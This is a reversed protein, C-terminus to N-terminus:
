RGCSYTAKETVVCDMRVDPEDLPIEPFLQCEFALGILSARKDVRGLLRDYYGKGYGLRGGERDFAVGPTFVVDLELPSVQRDPDGRRDSRPELIGYAGSELEDLSLLHFLTLESRECYPIVIRKPSDLAKALAFSTRVESRVDIYFLVTEAARYESLGMARALIERSLDDKAPQDRRMKRAQTRLERKREAQRNTEDDTM